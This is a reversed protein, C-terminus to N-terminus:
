GIGRSAVKLDSKLNLLPEEGTVDMVFTKKRVTKVFVFLDLLAIHNTLAIIVDLKILIGKIM